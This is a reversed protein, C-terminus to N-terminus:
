NRYPEYGTLTELQTATGKSLAVVGALAVGDTLRIKVDRKDTTPGQGDRSEGHLTGIGVTNGLQHESRMEVLADIPDLGARRALERPVAEFADATAEVVLQQRGEITDAHERLEAALAVEGAGGTCDKPDRGIQGSEIRHLAENLAELSGEAVTAYDLGNARLDEASQLLDEAIPRALEREALRDIAGDAVETLANPDHRATKVLAQAAVLRDDTSGELREVLDAHQLKGAQVDNVVTEVRQQLETTTGNNEGTNRTRDEPEAEKEDEETDNSRFIGMITRKYAM